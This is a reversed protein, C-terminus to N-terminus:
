VPLAVLGGPGNGHIVLSVETIRTLHPLHSRASTVATDPDHTNAWHTGRQSRKRGIMQVRVCVIGSAAHAESATWENSSEPTVYYHKYLGHKIPLRFDEPRTKWTKCKGNVRARFPSGDANREVLHYLVTGIKLTKALEINVM